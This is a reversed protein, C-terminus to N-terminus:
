PLFYKKRAERTFRKAISYGSYGALAGTIFLIVFGLKHLHEPLYLIIFWAKSTSETIDLVVSVPLQIMILIFFALYLAWISVAKSRPLENEQCGAIESNASTRKAQKTGTRM